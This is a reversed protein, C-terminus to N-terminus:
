SGELARRLDTASEPVAELLRKKGAASLGKVGGLMEYFLEGHGTGVAALWDELAGSEDGLGMRGNGRWIRAYAWDGQGPASETVVPDLEAIGERFRGVVVLVKGVYVKYVRRSPDFGFASRLDANDAEVLASPVDLGSAARRAIEGWEAFARAYYAEGATPDARIAKESADMGQEFAKEVRGVYPGLLSGKLAMADGFTPDLAFAEDLLAFSDLRRQELMALRFRAYSGRAGRPDLADLAHFRALAEGQQGAQLLIEAEIRVLEPQEGLSANAKRCLDLAERFRGRHLLLRAELEASAQTLPARALDDIVRDLAPGVERGQALHAELLVPELAASSARSKEADRVRREVTELKAALADREASAKTVLDRIGQTEAHQAKELEAARDRARAQDRETTVVVGLAFALAAAATVALVFALTAPRRPALGAAAAPTRDELFAELEQALGEASPRAGPEKSLAHRCIRELSAPVGLPGLPPPEQDLVAHAIETIAEGDFPKRAALSEYLVIGLAWVDAARDVKHGLVQEPAMYYPTGIVEGTRTVVTKSNQDRALGFDTVRPRGERDILINAPKLDRHIVGAEHAAHVSRAVTAVISAAERPPIPGSKMRARLTSGPVYEMVMYPLGREEGAFVARVIGPDGIRSALLAERAFRARGEPDAAESSSLVKVAVPDGSAARALFVTASSGRGLESILEYTGIKRV